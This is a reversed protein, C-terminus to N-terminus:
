INAHHIYAVVGLGLMTEKTGNRKHGWEFKSKTRSEKTILTYSLLGM